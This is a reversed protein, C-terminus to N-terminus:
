RGHFPRRPDKIPESTVVVPDDHGVDAHRTVVSHFQELFNESDIGGIRDNQNGSMAIHLQCDLGHAEASIIEDFLRKGHRTQRRDDLPRQLLAPQHHFVPRQAIFEILFVIQRLTKSAARWTNQAQTAFNFRHCSSIGVHQHDTLGARALLHHCPSQVVVSVPGFAIKDGDVTGGQGGVDELGFEETVFRAGEGACLLLPHALELMGLATRDKEIFDFRHRKVQLRFQEPGNFLAADFTKARVLRNWQINPEYRCGLEVEFLLPNGAPEAGIEVVTEIDNRQGYWRQALALVIDGQQEKMQGPIRPRAVAPLYRLDVVGQFSLQQGM